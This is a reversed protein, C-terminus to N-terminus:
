YWGRRYGYGYHYRYPHSYFYGYDRWRRHGYWRHRPGYWRHRPGYWCYREGYYWDCYRRGYWTANEVQADGAVDRDIAPVLGGSPAAQAPASVALGLGAALAAAFLVKASM